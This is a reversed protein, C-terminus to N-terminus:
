LIYIKFNNIGILIVKEKYSGPVKTQYLRNLDGCIYIKEINPM